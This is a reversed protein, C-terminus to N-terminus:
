QCRGFYPWVGVVTIEGVVHVPGSIGHTTERTLSAM